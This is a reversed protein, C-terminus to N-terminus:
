WPGPIQPFTSEDILKQDTCTTDDLLVWIGHNPKWFVSYEGQEDNIADRMSLGFYRDRSSFDKYEKFVHFDYRKGNFYDCIEEIFDEENAYGKEGEHVKDYVVLLEVPHFHVILNKRVGKDDSGKHYLWHPLYESTPKKYPQGYWILKGDHETLVPIESIASLSEKDTRAATCAM